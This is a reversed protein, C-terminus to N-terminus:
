IAGTQVFSLNISRVTKEPSVIYQNRAEVGVLIEGSDSLGVVSPIIQRGENDGIIIPKGDEIVAVESNTTGLDIGLISESM